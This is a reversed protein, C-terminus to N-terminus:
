DYLFYQQRIKEFQRLDKQWGQIIEKSKKGNQIAQRVKATGIVKDFMATRTGNFIQQEPYLKKLATLIHIQAEVPSFKAFDLIHIQVGQLNKHKFSSYFPSYHIPRFYTGPINRQNLERALGNADIWTTGILEFPLTYGIGINITHLEGIIGTTPYFMATKSQPLHPSTPIWELGTEDFQMDRHWGKMKVVTLDCDINFENNFLKALEGCTLGYVYPIPYLGLFSKFKAELIPGDVLKGGLPNPRDLVVFPIDNSKAAQMAYAMTSIFTYSRCGIDQIDYVLVEIDKLMNKTPRRTSGYLSYVQVGSKKDTYHSGKKGAKLDGRVGHEPGFLAVLNIIDNQHFLDITAVLKSNVGTQNTILGVNKNKIIDIKEKLLVEVGLRINSSNEAKLGTTSFVLSIIIVFIHIPNFKIRM